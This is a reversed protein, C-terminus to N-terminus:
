SGIVKCTGNTYLEVGWPVQNSPINVDCNSNPPSASDPCTVSFKLHLDDPECDPLQVSMTATPQGPMCELSFNAPTTLLAIPNGHEDKKTFRVAEVKASCGPACKLVANRTCPVAGRSLGSTSAASPELIFTAALTAHHGNTVISPPWYPPIAGTLSLNMGVPCCWSIVYCGKAYGNVARVLVVSAVAVTVSQKPLLVINPAVGAAQPDMIPLSGPLPPGALGGGLQISNSPMTDIWILLASPGENHITIYQRAGFITPLTVAPSQLYIVQYAEATVAIDGCHGEAAVNCKNTTCCKRKKGFFMNVLKIGKERVDGNEWFSVRGLSIKKLFARAAKGRATGPM